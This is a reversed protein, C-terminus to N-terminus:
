PNFLPPNEDGSPPIKVESGNQPKEEPKEIPNPEITNAKSVKVITEMPFLKQLTVDDAIGTPNMNQLRQFNKIANITPKDRKGTVILGYGTKKNIANQIDAVSKKEM